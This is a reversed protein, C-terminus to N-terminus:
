LCNDPRPLAIALYDDALKSYPRNAILWGRGRAGIEAREAEPMARYRLIEEVLADVDGAPVVTGAGSDEIMTPYGTYSGVIPRAAMMYDVSKNLSMGYRWVKSRHVSFYLLDAVELVYKVIPNPM